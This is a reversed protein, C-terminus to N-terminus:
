LINPLKYLHESLCKYIIIHECKVHICCHYRSFGIVKRTYIHLDAYNNIYMICTCSLYNMNALKCICYFVVCVQQENNPTSTSTAAVNTESTRSQRLANTVAESIIRALDNDNRSAM